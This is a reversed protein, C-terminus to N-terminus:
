QIHLKVIGIHIGLKTFIPDFNRRKNLRCIQLFTNGSKHSGCLRDELWRVYDTNKSSRDLALNPPLRIYITVEGNNVCMCVSRTM